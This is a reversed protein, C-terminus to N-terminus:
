KEEEEISKDVHNPDIKGLIWSLGAGAWTLTDAKHNKGLVSSITEDENGFKHGGEHILLDNFVEQMFVNGLQDIAIATSFLIQDVRKLLAKFSVGISLRIVSYVFGLPYLVLSLIASLIFLITGM